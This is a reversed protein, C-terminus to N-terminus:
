YVTRGRMKLMGSSSGHWPTFVICAADNTKAHVRDTHVKFHTLEAPVSAGYLNNWGFLINFYFKPLTLVVARAV